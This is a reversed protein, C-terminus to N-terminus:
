RFTPVVNKPTAPQPPRVMPSQTERAASEIPFGCIKSFSAQNAFLGGKVKRRKQV